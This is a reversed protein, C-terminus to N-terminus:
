HGEHGTFSLGGLCLQSGDQECDKESPGGPIPPATLEDTRWDSSVHASRRLGMLELRQGGNWPQGREVSLSARSAERNSHHSFPLGRLSPSKSCAVQASHMHTHTQTLEFRDQPICHAVKQVTADQGPAERIVDLRSVQLQDQQQWQRCMCKWHDAEPLSALSQGPMKKRNLFLVWRDSNLGRFLVCSDLLQYLTKSVASPEPAHFEQM